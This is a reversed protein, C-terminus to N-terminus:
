GQIRPASERQPHHVHGQRYAPLLLALHRHQDTCHAGALAMRRQLSGHLHLVELLLRCVPPYRRALLPLADHPVGAEPQEQLPRQLQRHHHRRHEGGSRHHRRFRRPQGGYLRPPLIGAIDNGTGNRGDSRTCPIRGTLHRLIGHIAEPQESPHCLPQCHHHLRHYDLPLGPGM